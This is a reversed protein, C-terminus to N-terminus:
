PRRTPSCATLSNEGRGPDDTCHDAVHSPLLDTLHWDLYSKALMRLGASVNGRDVGKSPKEASIHTTTDLHDDLLAILESAATDAADATFARRRHEPWAPPFAILDHYLDDIAAALPARHFDRGWGLVLHKAFAAVRVDDDANM